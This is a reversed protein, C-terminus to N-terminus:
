DIVEMEKRTPSAQMYAILIVVRNVKYNFWDDENRLENMLIKEEIDRLIEIDSLFLAYGLKEHIKKKFSRNEWSTGIKYDQAIIQARIEELTLDKKIDKM